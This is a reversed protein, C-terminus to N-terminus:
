FAEASSDPIARTHMSPCLDNIHLFVNVAEKIVQAARSNEVSTRPKDDHSSLYKIHIWLHLLIWMKLDRSGRSRAAGKTIGFM